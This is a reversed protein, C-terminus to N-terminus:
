RSPLGPDRCVGFPDDLPSGAPHGHDAYRYPRGAEAMTAEYRKLAQVVLLRRWSTCAIEDWFGHAEEEVQRWEADPISTLELLDGELRLRAEGAWYWHQRYYHSSDMTVRFLERLREPLARWSADNAFFSGCWAGSINNTLLYNTVEAWGVTYAETIGCWAMGDLEGGAIAERVRDWPLTVPVVGFRTLFRGATPFTFIRKGRLDALARIPEVTLFHCPDWSGASIWTVGTRAYAQRWIEDLGYDHFLAPLDLSYRTAFPFYGGFLAVDAPSGMSDDDSQAADVVGSRVADFLESQPVLTDATHLAIEMEGNAIRNFSEVAPRIVQDALSDGAYTQLRWRITSRSQTIPTPAAVASAALPAAAAGAAVAATAKGAGRLFGRRTSDAPQRAGASANGAPLIRPEPPGAARRLARKARAGFGAAFRAASPLRPPDHPM